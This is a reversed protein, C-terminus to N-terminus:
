NFTVQMTTKSFGNPNEFYWVTYTTLNEGVNKGSIQATTSTFKEKIDLGMGDVDKVEKLTKSTGPVAFMVRKAGEAVAIDGIAYNKVKNGDTARVVTHIWTDDIASTNDTGSYKFSYRFGTIKSTDTSSSATGASVQAANLKSAGEVDDEPGQNLNNVPMHGKAYDMSVSTGYYSTKDDVAIASASASGTNGSMTVALTADDGGTLTITAVSSPAAGTSSGDTFDNLSGYTYTKPDFTVTFSPTVSSGVEYSGASSLSMSISPTPKSPYLTQTFISAFVDNLNKGKVSLTKAETSTKTINGVQTYNGALTIDSDLYVNSANYNGDMAVWNKGDWVYATHSYKGSAIETKVVAVDGIM